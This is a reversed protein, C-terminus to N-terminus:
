IIYLVFTCTLAFIHFLRNGFNNVMKKILFEDLNNLAYQIYKKGKNRLEIWLNISSAEVYSDIIKRPGREHYQLSWDLYTLGNM